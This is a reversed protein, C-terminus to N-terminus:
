AKFFGGRDLGLGNRQSQCALVHDALGLGPRPLCSGKTQWDQLLQVQVLLLLGDLGDYNFWGSFQGDLGLFFKEAQASM